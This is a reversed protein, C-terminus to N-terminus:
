IGLKISKKAEEVFERARALQVKADDETIEVFDGYDADERLDKVKPLYKSIEKSFLNNKVIHLNFLAIVGSHKSSDMEKLALVARAATFMAYYSRNISLGFHKYQLNDYAEIILKEAKQMRYESLTLKNSM